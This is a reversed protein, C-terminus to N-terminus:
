EGGEAKVPWAPMAPWEGSGPNQQGCRLCYEVWEVPEGPAGTPRRTWAHICALIPDATKDRQGATKIEAVGNTPVDAPRWVWSCNQCEHSRHPPNDWNKEPQPQDIHQTSCQPCFLMMDIPQIEIAAPDIGKLRSEHYEACRAMFEERPPVTDHPYKEPADPLLNWLELDNEWCLAHGRQQWHKRIANELDLTRDHQEYYVTQAKEVNARSGELQAYTISHASRERTLEAELVGAKTGLRLYHAQTDELAVILEPIWKVALDGIFDLGGNSEARFKGISLNEKLEEIQEKTIM